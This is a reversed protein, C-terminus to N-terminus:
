HNQQSSLSLTVQAATEKDPLSYSIWGKGQKWIRASALGHGARVLQMEETKDTTTALETLQCTARVLLM